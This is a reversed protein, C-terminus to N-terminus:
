RAVAMCAVRGAEDLIAQATRMDTHRRIVMGINVVTARLIENEQRDKAAQVTRSKLGDRDAQAAALERELDRLQKRLLTITRKAEAEGRWRVRREPRSGPGDRRARVRDAWDPYRYYLTSTAIGVRRAFETVSPRDQSNKEIEEWVAQIREPTM